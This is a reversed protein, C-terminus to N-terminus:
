CTVLQRTYYKIETNARITTDINARFHLSQGTLIYSRAEFPNKM